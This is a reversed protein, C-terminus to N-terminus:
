RANGRLRVHITQEGSVTVYKPMDLRFWISKTNLPDISIAAKSIDTLANYASMLASENFSSLATEFDGQGVATDSAMAWLDFGDLVTSSATVDWSADDWVTKDVTIGVDGDNTITLGSTSCTSKNLDVSGFNYFTPSVTLSATVVPTVLLSVNASDTSSGAMVTGAMMGLLGVVMLVALLKKM